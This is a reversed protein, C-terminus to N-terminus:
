RTLCLCSPSIRSTGRGSLPASSCGRLWSVYTTSGWPTRPGQRSTTSTDTAAAPTRSPECCSLSSSRCRSAEAAAAMTTFNAATAPLAVSRRSPPVSAQSLHSAVASSQQLTTPLCLPAPPPPRPVSPTSAPYLPPCLSSTLCFHHRSSSPPLSLPFIRVFTLVINLTDDIPRIM